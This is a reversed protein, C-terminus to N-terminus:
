LLTAAVKLINSGKVAIGIGSSGLLVYSIRRFNFDSIRKYIRTGILTCPLVIPLLLIMLSWFENNFVSPQMVALVALSFVQMGLIYPQVIARTDDKSLHALNAWIVVAAGPFATLGGIIGGLCGVSITAARGKDMKVPISDPKFSFYAAYAILFAGFAIMLANAPLVQLLWLGIPAGVVGGLMFPAPSGAWWQNLPKMDAKLQGISLLQNATSLAMLLPIALTPRLISLSIAGIASFGFGSLGSMIGSAALILALMLFSLM